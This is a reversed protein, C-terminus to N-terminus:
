LAGDVLAALENFSPVRGLLVGNVILGPTGPISLGTAAALDEEIREVPDRMSACRRFERLDAVGSEEAFRLFADGLWDDETFLREHFDWFRGQVAACEAARAADYAYRHYPLPLHRYVLAVEDPYQDLLEM